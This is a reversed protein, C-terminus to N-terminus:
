RQCCGAASACAACTWATAGAAGQQSYRVQYHAQMEPSSVNRFSAIIGRVSALEAELKASLAPVGFQEIGAKASDRFFTSLVGEYQQKLAPQCTGWAEKEFGYQDLWAAVCQGPPLHM